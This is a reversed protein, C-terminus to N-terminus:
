SNQAAGYWCQPDKSFFDNTKGYAVARCGRCYSFLNCSSCGDIRDLDRFKEMEKSFFIDEFDQKLINGVPSYFRRCAYVEGDDLLTMHSIGCHCGSYIIGNDEKVQCIGKEVLYPMWLHDKLNFSTSTPQLGQFTHWMTDLFNRYEIPTLLDENDGHTPCYRAFTYVNVGLESMIKAVDPLERYNKRSVTSMINIKHGGKVLEEIKNITFDFSGPKRFFDHTDRLGDISLQYCRCGMDSLQRM